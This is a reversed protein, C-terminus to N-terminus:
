PAGKEWGDGRSKSAGGATRSIHDENRKRNEVIIGRIDGANRRSTGDKRRRGTRRRFVEQWSAMKGAAVKILGTVGSEKFIV